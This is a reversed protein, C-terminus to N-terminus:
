FSNLYKCDIDSLTLVTEEFDHCSKAGFLVVKGTHTITAKMRNIKTFLSVHIDPYYDSGPLQLSLRGLDLRHGLDVTGVMNCVMPESTVKLALCNKEMEEDLKEIATNAEAITKCKFILIRGSKQILFTAYDRQIHVTSNRPCM